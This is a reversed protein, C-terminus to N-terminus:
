FPKTAPTGSDGVGPSGGMTVDRIDGLPLVQPSLYKKKAQTKKCTQHNLDKDKM